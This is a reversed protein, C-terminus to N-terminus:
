GTRMADGAAAHIGRRLRLMGRAEQRTMATSLTMKSILINYLHTQSEPLLPLTAQAQAEVAVSAVRSPGAQGDGQHATVIALSAELRCGVDRPASAAAALVVPHDGGERAIGTRTTEAAAALVSVRRPLLGHDVPTAANAHGEAGRGRQRLHIRIRIRALEEPVDLRIETKVIAVHHRRRLHDLTTEADCLRRRVMADWDQARRMAIKRATVIAVETTSTDPVVARLMEVSKVCDALMATKTKVESSTHVGQGPISKHRHPRDPELGGALM